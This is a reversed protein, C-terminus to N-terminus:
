RLRRRLCTYPCVAPHSHTEESVAGCVAAGEVLREIHCCGELQGSHEHAFIVEKGNGDARAVVHGDGVDRVAGGCVTHRAVAYVSVVDLQYILGGLGGDLACAAALAGGEDLALGPAVAAVVLAVGVVVPGGLFLGFPHLLVGEFAKCLRRISSPMQVWASSSAMADSASLSSASAISSASAAGTGLTDARM